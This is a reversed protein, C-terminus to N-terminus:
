GGSDVVTKSVKAHRKVLVRCMLLVANLPKNLSMKCHVNALNWWHCKPWTYTRFKGLFSGLHWVGFDCIGAVYTELWWKEWACWWLALKQLRQLRSSYRHARPCVRIRKIIPTIPIAFFSLARAVLYWLCVVRQGGSDVVTKSVKAHRKVVWCTLLVANLPKNLSMKVTCM